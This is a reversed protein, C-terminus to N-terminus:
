GRDNRKCRCRLSRMLLRRERATRQAAAAFEGPDIRAPGEAEMARLWALNGRRAAWWYFTNHPIRGRRWLDLPTLSSATTNARPAHCFDCFQRLNVGRQGRRRAQLRAIHADGSSLCRLFLCGDRLWPHGRRADLGSRASIWATQRFGSRSAAEM